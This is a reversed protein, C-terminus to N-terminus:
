GASTGGDISLMSGTAFTVETAVYVVFSAIEDASAFRKMPVQSLAADRAVTGGLLELEAKLMPTDVPGPCVCNVRVHPALELALSKSLGSLGAKSACYHAFNPMGKFSLDSAIAVISGRGRDRMRLACERMVYFAGNLNVDIHQRWVEASLVELPAPTVIGAAHVLYDIGGLADWVEAIAASVKADDSIDVAVPLSGQGLTKAIEELEGARRGSLAVRAGLDAFRRACALGIGSTAGTVFATRGELSRDM